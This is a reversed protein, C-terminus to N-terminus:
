VILNIFKIYRLQKKTWFILVPRLNGYLWTFIFIDLKRYEDEYGILRFVKNKYRLLLLLIIFNFFVITSILYFVVCRISSYLLYPIFSTLNSHISFSPAATTALAPTAINCCNHTDTHPTSSRACLPIREAM